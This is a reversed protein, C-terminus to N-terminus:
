IKWKGKFYTNKVQRAKEKAWEELGMKQILCLNFM